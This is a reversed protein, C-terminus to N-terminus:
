SRHEIASKSLIAIGLIILVISAWLPFIMVTEKPVFLLLTEGRSFEGGMGATTLMLGVSAMGIGAHRTDVAAGIKRRVLVGIALGASTMSLLMKNALLPNDIGDGPSANIGSIIALPTAILGGLLAWHAVAERSEPGKQIMCLLFAVGSLAFMGITLETSIVHITGASIM